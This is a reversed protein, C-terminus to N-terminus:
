EDKAKWGADLEKREAKSLDKITKKDFKHLMATLYEKYTAGNAQMGSCDKKGGGPGMGRGHPGTGDRREVRRAEILEDLTM